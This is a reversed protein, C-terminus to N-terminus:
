HGCRAVLANAIADKLWFEQATVREGGGWKASNEKDSLMANKLLSQREM